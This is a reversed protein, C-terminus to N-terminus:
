LNGTRLKEAGYFVEQLQSDLQETLASIAAKKVPGSVAPPEIPQGVVIAVRSLSPLKSRLGDSSTRLIQESGAVGVPVIPLGSKLSLYACGGSLESLELGSGRTGEPFIAVKKSQKLLKLCERLPGRDSGDRDVPIVGMAGIMKGLLPWELVERKSIFHIQDQSVNSVFPIDMMSRHTPAIICGGQPVRNQGRLRARWIVRSGVGVILRM